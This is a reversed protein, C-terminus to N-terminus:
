SNMFKNFIYYEFFKNFFIFPGNDIIKFKLNIEFIEPSIKLIIDLNVLKRHCIM